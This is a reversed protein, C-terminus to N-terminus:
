ATCMRQRLHQRPLVLAPLRTKRQWCKAAYLDKEGGTNKARHMQVACHLCPARCVVQKCLLATVGHAGRRCVAQAAPCLAALAGETLPVSRHWSNELRLTWSGRTTWCLWCPRRVQRAFATTMLTLYGTCTCSFGYLTCTNKTDPAVSSEIRVHLSTM